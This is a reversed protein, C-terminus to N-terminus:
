NGDAKPVALSLGRRDAEQSPFQVGTRAHFVIRAHVSMSIASIRQLDLVM